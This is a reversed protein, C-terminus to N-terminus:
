DFIFELGRHSGRTTHGDGNNRAKRNWREEETGLLLGALIVWFGLDMGLGMSVPLMAAGAM